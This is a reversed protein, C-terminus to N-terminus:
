KQFSGKGRLEKPDFKASGHGRLDEQGPELDEGMLWRRNFEALKRQEDLAEQLPSPVDPRRPAAPRKVFRGGWAWAHLLAGLVAGAAFIGAGILTEM